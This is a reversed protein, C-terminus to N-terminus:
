KALINILLQAGEARTIQKRPALMGSSGQIYGNAVAWSMADEAWSSVQDADSFATLDANEVPAAELFRYLMVVAQERTVASNPNFKGASTGNVIGAYYAWIVADEYWAGEKVDVFPNDFECQPHGAANYLIQACQARSLLAKPAFTTESTGNMIGYYVVFDAADHYWANEAVDTFAASPCEGTAPIAETEKEDCVSCIHQRLGDTNYTADLITEWENWSHGLAPIEQGRSKVDGCVTCIMDGTYGAAVCTPEKQASLEYSHGIPQLVETIVSYDCHECVMSVFGAETCSPATTVAELEHETKAIPATYCDGCVSCTYTLVGEATCTPELTVASTYSHGLANVWVDVYSDECRSCTHTTFGMGVCTPATVEDTYSHGLAETLSTIYSYDCVTCKMTTYGGTTCTPATVIAELSHDTMPIVQTYSAQCVSCTFTMEGEATCTPAKTVATSYSHDLANVWTDVYSDGCSACTHTTYGMATCTPATVVAEYSHGLPETVDSMYTDGCVSCTYTTYGVSVCTPETRVSTYSHGSAPVVNDRYSYGCVSCTHDTYGDKECTPEVTSTVFSHEGPVTTTLTKLGYNSHDLGYTFSVTYTCGGETPVITVYPSIDRDMGNVQHAVVKLDQATFSGDANATVKGCSLAEIGTLKPTIAIMYASDNKYYITGYDDAITSCICYQSLPSAPTFVESYGADTTTIPATQGPKDKLVSIGGPTYNYPLYIYVYGDEEIYATTLMASTQPYGLIEYSYASTMTGDEALSYVAICHGSFAAFQGDGCVGIYIRGNYVSPTCTSMAHETGKANRIVVSDFDTIKGSTWDIKANCLVGGKSTFFVRDSQPDYSVNSRIDGRIGDHSDVICGTHKDMVLLSATESVTGSTGDDTGVLVYDGKVFAGAWYFGGARTYTWAATKAETTEHIDEDAVPICAFNAKGTESNWFGAYIYGDSYTIPCNPQGGLPATYVWLSELTAANFAQIRGGSLGVFIMGEAYTAPVISFSSSAVMTNEAIVTGTVPDLRKISSGVYTILADGVLIPSGPAAAWGTGYKQAWLVEADDPTFPTKANTIGLHNEGNRFNPWQASISTDIAPNALVTELELTIAENHASEITGTKAVYGNKAASYHYAATEMLTYTGDAEPWIRNGFSDTLNVTADAPTVVFSVSCTPVKTISVTYTTSYGEANSVVITITNEGDALPIEKESGGNITVTYGDAYAAANVVATTATTKATYQTVLGSFTENFTVGDVSLSGLTPTRISKVTYVKNDASTGVTVTLTNTDAANRAFNALSQGTAKGSTITASQINGNYNNTWSAKITSGAPAKDSLTAWLYTALTKCDPIEVTFSFRSGAEYMKYVDSSASSATTMKLVSLYSPNVLLDYAAEAALLTEYNSVQNKEEETLADYAARAAAIASGSEATVAGIANILKEVAEAPTEQPPYVSVAALPMILVSESADTACATIAYEGTKDFTLTVAGDEDTVADEIPTLEGTTLNVTCIQADPVTDGSERLQAADKYLYGMMAMAGNLTLSLPQRATADFSTAYAGSADTFWTYTDCYYPDEYFFFEVKDADFVPETGVVTGNYGGYPSETGDNPYGGNHFFGSYLGTESVDVGFCVTPSGASVTLFDGCSDQNFADGFVLEHAKVLVDLASVNEGMPVGDKYGYSEALNSIIPVDWQPAMLFTGSLQATFDVCSEVPIPEDEKETVEVHLAGPASVVSGLSESEGGYVWLWYSGPTDFTISFTGDAGTVLCEASDGYLETDYYVDYNGEPQTQTAGGISLDGWNRGLFLNLPKGAQVTTDIVLKAEGSDPTDTYFYHYGAADDMWFSWDSYMSVNIFDGDHMVIHDCTAGWGEYELPYAGNVYYTLNEDHGWFGSQLYLSGASGTINLESTKGSYYHELTYLFVHLLTLEYEWDDDADYLYDQLDYDELDIEKKVDSLKIPVYAMLTGNVDGDSQVFIDDDSVCIYVTPESAPAALITTPMLSVVMALALLLSLIRKKM